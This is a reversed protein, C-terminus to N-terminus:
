GSSRGSRSRQSWCWRSRPAPLRGWRIAPGTSGSHRASIKKRSLTPLSQMGPRRVSEKASGVPLGARSSLWGRPLQLSLRPFSRPPSPGPLPLSAAGALNTRLTGSFLKVFSSAGDSLGEIVGLAYVPAGLIILFSPLLVTVTEYGLDGFFSALGAGLVTNNLWPPWKM